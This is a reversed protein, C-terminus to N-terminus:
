TLLRLAHGPAKACCLSRCFDRCNIVNETGDGEERGRKSKAPMHMRSRAERGDVLELEAVQKGLHPCVGQMDGPSLLATEYFPPKPSHARTGTKTGPSCAFTGENRNQNQPCMQIYGREPKRESPVDALVVRKSFWGETFGRAYCM